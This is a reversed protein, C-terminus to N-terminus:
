PGLWVRARFFTSISGTANTSFLIQGSGLVNTWGSIGRWSPLDAVNTSSELAYYRQSQYQITTATTPFSVVAAGDKAHINLAFVSAPNLPDTGAIYDEWVATGKGTPDSLAAANFNTAWNTNVQYLWWEPTNHAALIPSYNAVITHDAQVNTFTYPAPTGANAGDITVSSLSYWNSTTMAFTNTAGPGVIVPGDPSISGGYGTASAQLAYFPKNTAVVLDDLMFNGSAVLQGFWPQSSDAAAYWTSPNTSAVGNVWVRYYFTGHTDPTYNAEITLRFFQNAAVPADLLETWGNGSALPNTSNWVALNGNSAVCVAFSADALAALPSALPNAQLITDVWVNTYFSPLFHNTVAGDIQLVNRQPGPIPPAGNYPLTYNTLAIIAAAGNDGTWYNTGVLSFGVPYSEFSEAYPIINNSVLGPMIRPSPVNTGSFDGMGGYRNDGWTWVTGDRRVCINHYDRAASIVISSLGPVQVALPHANTDSTGIGLEGFANQGWKWVTGDARRAMSSLDGGSVSVVNGLGVVQMPVTSIGGSTGIGLESSVNDGWSWATGDSRVALAHIWGCSISVVNSLGIVQVPATRNNTTGDGLQGYTNNGWTWVTGNSMLAMSYFGGGSIAIPNTLGIVQVPTNTGLLNTTGDGLQGYWNCGWAWITGDTKVALNHYGRGGLFAVSTLSFLKVASTSYNTTNGWNASGDGLQGFYNWGWCWVTGDTKLAMNHSEGGIIAALSNLYGVGGQGLVQGPMDTDNNTGITGNGLQAHLNFGWDWVTGDSKLIIQESGAGGWVSTVRPSSNTPNSLILMTGQQASSGAAACLLALFVAQRFRAVAVSHTVRKRVNLESAALCGPKDM